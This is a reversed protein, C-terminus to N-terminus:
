SGLKEKTVAIENELYKQNYSKRIRLFKELGKDTEKETIRIEGEFMGLIAQVEEPPHLEPNIVVLTTFGKSKLDFLLSSLWKRTTV